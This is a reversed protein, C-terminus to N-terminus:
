FGGTMCSSLFRGVNISGSPETGHECSGAVPGQGLDSGTWIV